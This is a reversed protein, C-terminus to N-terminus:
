PCVDIYNDSNLVFNYHINTKCLRLNLYFGYMVLTKEHM